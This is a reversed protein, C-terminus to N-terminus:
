ELSFKVISLQLNNGRVRQSIQLRGDIQMNLVHCHLWTTILMRECSPPFIADASHFKAGMCNRYFNRTMFHRSFGLKYIQENRVTPSFHSLHTFLFFQLICKSPIISSIRCNHMSFDLFYSIYSIICSSWNSPLVNKLM